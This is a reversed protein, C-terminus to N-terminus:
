WWTRIRGRLSQYKAMNEKPHLRVLMSVKGGLPSRNLAEWYQEVVECEDPMGGAHEHRLPHLAQRRFSRSPRPVDRPTLAYPKQYYVDFLPCGTIIAETKIHPFQDALEGKMEESWVTYYDCAVDM